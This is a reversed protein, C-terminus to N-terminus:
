ETSNSMFKRIASVKSGRLYSVSPAYGPPVPTRVGLAPLQRVLCRQVWVRHGGHGSRSRLRSAGCPRGRGSGRLRRCLSASPHGMGQGPGQKDAWRLKVALSLPLPLPSSLSSFSPSTLSHPRSYRHSLSPLPCSSPLPPSSFSSPPQVGARRPHGPLALRRERGCHPVLGRQSYRARVPWRLTRSHRPQSAHWVHQDVKTTGHAPILVPRRPHALMMPSPPNNTAIVHSTAVVITRM